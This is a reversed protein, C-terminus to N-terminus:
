QLKYVEILGVGTGANKGAVVATYNGSGITAVIASELDNSPAIGTAQIEAEQTDRWNDNSRVLAGNGDRLELTPDALVGTVGAQALSPGLARAIIRASDPGVLILGGIM